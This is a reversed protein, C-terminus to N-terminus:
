HALMAYLEYIGLLALGFAFGVGVYATISTQARAPARQPEAKNAGTEPRKRADPRPEFGPRTHYCSPKM